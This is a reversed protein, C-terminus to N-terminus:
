NKTLICKNIIMVSNLSKNKLTNKHIKNYIYKKTYKTYPTYVFEFTHLFSSSM